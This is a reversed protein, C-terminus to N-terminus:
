IQENIVGNKQYYESEPVILKWRKNYTVKRSDNVLYRKSKGLHEKCNIFFAESINLREKLPELLFGTKQYLFQNDYEQLYKLLQKEKLKPLLQINAFTEELGAIKNLGYILDILTKELDTVRVGNRYEVGSQKKVLVCKYTYGDFEFQNFKTLSSVYVEYYVQDTYGYFEIASHFSVYSTPTLSSAIQFRDALPQKDIGNICTYKNNRIKVVMGKNVLRKIASRATEISGDGYLKNVDEVTFVPKTLLKFYLDM